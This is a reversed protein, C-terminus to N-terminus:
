PGLALLERRGSHSRVGFGPRAQPVRARVQGPHGSTSSNSCADPDSMGDSDLLRTCCWRVLDVHFTFVQPGPQLLQVQWRDGIEDQHVHWLHSENGSSPRQHASSIWSKMWPFRSLSFQRIIITKSGPQSVAAINSSATSLAFALTAGPFRLVTSRWGARGNPYALSRGSRTCGSRRSRRRIVPSLAAKVIPVSGRM